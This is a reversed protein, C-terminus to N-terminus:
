RHREFTKSGLRDLQAPFYCDRATRPDHGAVAPFRGDFSTDCRNEIVLPVQAAGIPNEINGRMRETSISHSGVHTLRCGKQQELWSRRKSVDEPTYGQQKFRPVLPPSTEVGSSEGAGCTVATRDDEKKM